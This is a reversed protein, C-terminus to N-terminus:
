FPYELISYLYQIINFINAHVTDDFFWDGDFESHITILKIISDITSSQHNISSSQHHNIWENMWESAGWWEWSWIGRGYEWNFENLQADPRGSTYYKARIDRALSQNLYNWDHITTTRFFRRIWSYQVQITSLQREVILLYKYRVRDLIITRIGVVKLKNEVM